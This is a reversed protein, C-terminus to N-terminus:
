YGLSDWMELSRSPGKFELQSLIFSARLFFHVVCVRRAFRSLSRARRGLETEGFHAARSTPNLKAIEKGLRPAPNM